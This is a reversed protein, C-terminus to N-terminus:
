ETVDSPPPVVDPGLVDIPACPPATPVAQEINAGPLPPIVPVPDGRFIAVVLTVIFALLYLVNFLRSLMTSADAPNLTKLM